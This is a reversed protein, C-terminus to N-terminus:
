KKESEEYSKFGGLLLFDPLNSLLYSLAWDIKMLERKFRFSLSKTSYDYHGFFLYGSNIMIKLGAESVDDRLEKPSYYYTTGIDNPVIRKLISRKLVRRWWNDNVTTLIFRGESKLVRKLETLYRIRDKRGPIHQIVEVSLCVDFAKDKFPLSRGDAVVVTKGKKMAIEVRNISYDIGFVDANFTERLENFFRGTGCGVDLVTLNESKEPVIRRLVNIVAGIECEDFYNHVNSEYWSAADDSKKQLHKIDKM